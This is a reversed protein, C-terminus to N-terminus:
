AGAKHLRLEKLTRYFMRTAMGLTLILCGMAFVDGYMTYFSKRNALSLRAVRADEVFLNTEELIHGWADIFGSIGTNASRAFAVRNEVARLVVMSFHQAAAPSDGFWADNTMAMMIEAGADVFKRVLEPFIAEFCIVTGFRIGKVNMVTATRGPVFDGIGHAMKNIFSFAPPVYEGFPVLHMKDYRSYQQTEPSLLYASNYLKLPMAPEFSPSGLLLYFSRHRTWESLTAQYVFDQELFFPTASEPWVVWDPKKALSIETLHRYRELTQARYAADWKRDQPINGQIVAITAGRQSAMPQHLRSFGYGWTLVLVTMAMGMERRVYPYAGRHRFAFILRFLATNVLVIIWGIGYVSSFDAIQVIPLLRYQSYGLSSWPFGTFLHGRAYELSVWLLPPYLLGDLSSQGLVAGAGVSFCGIYLALYAALLILGMVSTAWSLGGYRHMSLTTWWLTGSFYVLGCIWGYLFRRRPTLNRIAFFLPILAVWALLSLSWRPFSLYLLVGCLLAAPV